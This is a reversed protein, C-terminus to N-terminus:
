GGTKVRWAQEIKRFREGEFCEEADEVEDDCAAREDQRSDPDAEVEEKSGLGVLILGKLRSRLRERWIRVLSDRVVETALWSAPRVACGDFFCIM